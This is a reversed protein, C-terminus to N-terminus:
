EIGLHRRSLDEDHGQEQHGHRRGSEQGGHARRPSQRHRRLRLVAAAAVGGGDAIRRRRQVLPRPRQEHRPHRLERCPRARPAGPVLPRPNVPHLFLFVHASLEYTCARRCARVYTVREAPVRM